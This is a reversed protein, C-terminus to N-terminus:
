IDSMREVAVSMSFAVRKGKLSGVFITYDGSEDLGITFKGGHEERLLVAHGDKGNIEVKIGVRSAPSLDIVIKQGARARVAYTIGYAGTDGRVTASSKGKEFQIRKVTQAENPVVLSGAFTTLLFATTIIRKM